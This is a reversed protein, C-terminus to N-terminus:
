GQVEPSQVYSHKHDPLFTLVINEMKRLWWEISFFKYRELMYTVLVMVILLLSAQCIWNIEKLAFLNLYTQYKICFLATTQQCYYLTLPFTGYRLLLSFISRNLVKKYELVFGLSWLLFCLCIAFIIGELAIIYPLLGVYMWYSVYVIMSLSFLFTLTISNLRSKVYSTFFYGALFFMGYPWIAFVGKDPRLYPFAAWLVILIALAIYKRTNNGLFNFAGFIAYGIGILQFIDWDIKFSQHAIIDVMWAFLFLIIGHVIMKLPWKHRSEHYWLSGGSVALFFPAALYGFFYSVNNVTGDLSYVLGQHYITMLIIAIGRIIDM